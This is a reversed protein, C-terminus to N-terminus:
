FELNKSYTYTKIVKQVSYRGQHRIMDRIIKFESSNTSLETTIATNAEQNMVPRPPISAHTIITKLNEDLGEPIHYSYKSIASPSRSRNMESLDKRLSTYSFSSNSREELRRTSLAPIERLPRVERGYSPSDATPNRGYSPSDSTLNRGYNPNDTTLNRENIPSDSALNRGYRPSDATLNLRRPPDNGLVMADVDEFDHRRDTEQKSTVTHEKIRFEEAYGKPRPPKSLPSVSQSKM